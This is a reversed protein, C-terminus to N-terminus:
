RQLPTTTPQEATIHGAIAAPIILAALWLLAGAASGIWICRRRQQTRTM